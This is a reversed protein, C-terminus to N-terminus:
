RYTPPKYLPSKYLNPSDPWNRKMERASREQERLARLRRNEAELERSRNELDELRQQDQRDRWSPRSDWSSQAYAPGSALLASLALMMM